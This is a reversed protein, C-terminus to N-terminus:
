KMKAIITNRSFTSSSLVEFPLNTTRIDPYDGSLVPIHDDKQVSYFPWTNLIPIKFDVNEKAINLM